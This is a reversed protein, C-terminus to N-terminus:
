AGDSVVDRIRLTRRRLVHAWPIVLLPVSASLLSHLVWRGGMESWVAERMSTDTFALDFNLALLVLGLGIGLVVGFRRPARGWPQIMLLPLTLLFHVGWMEGVTMMKDAIEVPALAM